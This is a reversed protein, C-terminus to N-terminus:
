SVPIANKFRFLIVAAAVWCSWTKTQSFPKADLMTGLPAVSFATIPHVAFATAAGFIVSRRAIM